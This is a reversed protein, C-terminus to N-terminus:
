RCVGTVDERSTEVMVNGSGLGVCDYVCAVSVREGGESKRVSEGGREVEKRGRVYVCWPWGRRLWAGWGRICWWGWTGGGGWEGGGGGVLCVGFLLVDEFPVVDEGAGGVGGVFAALVPAGEHEGRVVGEGRGGDAHM